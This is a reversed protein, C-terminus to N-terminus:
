LTRSKEKTSSVNLLPVELKVGNVELIDTVSRADTRSILEGKLTRCRDVIVPLTRNGLKICDEVANAVKWRLISSNWDTIELSPQQTVASINREDKTQIIRV